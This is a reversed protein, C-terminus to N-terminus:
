DALRKLTVQEPGSLTELVITDRSSSMIRFKMLPDPYFLCIGLSRASWGGIPQLLDQVM